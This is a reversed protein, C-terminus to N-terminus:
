LKIVTHSEVSGKRDSLIMHYTGAPINELSITYQYGREAHLTTQKIVSGSSSVLSLMYPDSNSIHSLLYIHEGAPNPYISFNNKADGTEIEEEISSTLNCGPVLCGDKDLHLLWPFLVRLSDDFVEGAAIITGAPTTKVDFFKGVRVRDQNWGLPIYHKMWLSDGNLGAKFLVGSPPYEMLNGQLEGAGIYGDSVQTLAFVNFYPAAFYPIDYFRTEWLLSDFDASVAIIYPIQITCFLCSDPHSIMHHGLIIWDENENRIVNKAQGLGNNIPITSPSWKFDIVKGDQTTNLYSSNYENLNDMAPRTSDLIFYYTGDNRRHFYKPFQKHATSEVRFERIVNFLTDLETIYLRTSDSDQHYSLLSITDTDYFIRAPAMKGTPYDINPILKSYLIDGSEINLNYIYPTSKGNIFRGSYGYWEKNNKRVFSLRSSNFPSEYTEDKLSFLQNVEGSYFFQGFWPKADSGGYSTDYRHGFALFSSDLTYLVRCSGLGKISELEPIINFFSQGHAVLIVHWFFLFTFLRNSSSMM